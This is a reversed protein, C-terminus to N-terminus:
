IKFKQIRENLKQALEAQNQATLSVQGVAKTTEDVGSQIVETNEWSKQAMSAMNQAAESVQGITAALEGSMSALEESMKSVFDSDNYYEMGMGAFTEFQPNVKENIFELIERSSESINKFAEQVKIITDQIGIVAESSQEALTRVEEAVVAFGRGQEGARAAEIAANLALLNTQEAISGITDAMQRINEVVKGDEIAKLTNKKKEGYIKETYEIAAKGANRVKTARQKSQISNDSGDAAKESLENISSDVEEISATIQQSAASTEQIINAVAKLSGDITQAKSSLEEATAFLEESSSSMDESDEMINKVLEVINKQAKDLAAAVEGFEDGRVMNVNSSFDFESFKGVLEKIKLLPRNINNSIIVGLGISLLASVLIIIILFIFSSEYQKVGNNYDVGAANVKLSIYKDLVSFMKTRYTETKQFEVRGNQYDGQKILTIYKERSNRWSELYQQFEAYLQKDKDSVITSKYETQLKENREKLNNIDNVVTNLSGKNIPDLIVLMDARAGMLNTKLEQLVNTGKLNLNYMNDLSLNVKGIKNISVIGVLCTFLVMVMFSLMLKKFIKLNSFWNM